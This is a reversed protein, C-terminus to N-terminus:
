CEAYSKKIYNINSYVKQSQYAKYMGHITPVFNKIYNVFGYDDGVLTFKDLGLTELKSLEVLQEDYIVNDGDVALLFADRSTSRLMVAKKSVVNPISYIYSWLTSVGIFEAGTTLCMAKAFSYAIRLGTFSGPGVSVIIKKLNDEHQSKLFDFATFLKESYNLKSQFYVSSLLSIKDDESEEALAVLGLKASSDIFLLM